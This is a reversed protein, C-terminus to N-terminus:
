RRMLAFRCRQVKRELMKIILYNDSGKTTNIKPTTPSFGEHTGEKGRGPQVTLSQQSVLISGLITRNPFGMLRRM